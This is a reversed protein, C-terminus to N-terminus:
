EIKSRLHTKKDLNIRGKKSLLLGRYLLPHHKWNFCWAKSGGKYIPYNIIQMHCNNLLFLEKFPVSMYTSKSKGGKRRRRAQFVSTIAPAQAIIKHGHFLSSSQITVCFTVSCFLVLFRSKQKGYSNEM